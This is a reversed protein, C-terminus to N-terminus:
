SPNDLDYEFALNCRSHGFDKENRGFDRKWFKVPRLEPPRIARMANRLDFSIIAHQETALEPYPTFLDISFLGIAVDAIALASDFGDVDSLGIRLWQTREHAPEGEDPWGIRTVQDWAAQRTTWQAKFGALIANRITKYDTSM